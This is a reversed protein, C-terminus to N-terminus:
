KALFKNIQGALGEKAKNILRRVSTKKKFDAKKAQIRGKLELQEHGSLKGAVMKLEGAIKNKTIEQDGKNRKMDLRGIELM